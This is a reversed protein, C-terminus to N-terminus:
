PMGSPTITVFVFNDNDNIDITKLIFQHLADLLTAIRGMEFFTGTRCKSSRIELLIADYAPTHVM